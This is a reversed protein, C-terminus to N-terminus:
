GSGGVIGEMGLAFGVAPRPSGFAAYLDDYRGGGAIPEGGTEGYVSFFFGTYYSRSAPEAVDVAARCGKRSALSRAILALSGASAGARNLEPDAPEIDGELLRRVRRAFGGSIGRAIRDSESLRRERVAASLRALAEGAETGLIDELAGVASLVVYTEKVGAAELAELGRRVIELDADVSADGLLEAGVQYFEASAGDRSGGRVVEGRYFVREVNSDPALRPALHRALAITFDARLALTDGHRDVFRYLEREEKGSLHPLYPALYDASPVIAERYGAARLGEVIREEASRRLTAEEFVYAAAGSPLRHPFPEASVKPAAPRRRLRTM